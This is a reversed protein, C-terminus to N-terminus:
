ENWKVREGCVGCFMPHDQVTLIKGCRPCKGMLHGGVNMMDKITQSEINKRMKNVHDLNGLFYCKAVAYSPPSEFHKGTVYNVFDLYDKKVGM